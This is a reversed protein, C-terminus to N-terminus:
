KKSLGKLWKPMGGKRKGKNDDKGEEANEKLSRVRIGQDEDDDAGNIEQVEIPKAQRRLSAERKV